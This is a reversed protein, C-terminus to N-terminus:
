VSCCPLVKDLAIKVRSIAVRLQISIKFQLLTFKYREVSLWVNNALRTICCAVRKDRAIIELSNPMSQQTNIMYHLLTVKFQTSINGQQLGYTGTQKDYVAALKGTM